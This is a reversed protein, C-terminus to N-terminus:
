QVSPSFGRTVVAAATYAPVVTTFAAPSPGVAACPTFGLRTRERALPSPLLPRPLARCLRRLVGFPYLGYVYGKLVIPRPHAISLPSAEPCYLLLAAWGGTRALSRCANTDFRLAWRARAACWELLDYSCELCMVAMPRALTGFAAPAAGSYPWAVGAAAAPFTSCPVRAGVDALRPSQAAGALGAHYHPTPPAHALTPLAVSLPSAM